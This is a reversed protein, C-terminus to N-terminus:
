IMREFSLKIIYSWCMKVRFLKVSLKMDLLNLVIM